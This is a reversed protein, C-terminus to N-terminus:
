LPFSGQKLKARPGNASRNHVLAVFSRSILMASPRLRRGRPGLAARVRGVIAIGVFAADFHLLNCAAFVFTVRAVLCVPSLFACLSLSRVFFIQRLM